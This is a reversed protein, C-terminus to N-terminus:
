GKAFMRFTEEFLKSNLNLRIALFHFELLLIINLLGVFKGILFGCPITMYNLYKFIPLVMLYQRWCNLWLDIFVVLEISVSAFHLKHIM